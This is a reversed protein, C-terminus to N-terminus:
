DGDIVGCNTIALLLRQKMIERTTYQPLDTQFFCTHAMPLASDGGGRAALKHKTDFEAASLPLRSRGWAFTLYQSRQEDTFDLRLVDWFFQIHRDSASGSPYETNRMLLDVDSAEFGRGCVM